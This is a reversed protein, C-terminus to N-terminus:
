SRCICALSTELSSVDGKLFRNRNPAPRSNVKHPSCRTLTNDVGSYGITPKVDLSYHIRSAELKLTDM